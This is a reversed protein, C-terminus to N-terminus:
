FYNLKSRKRIFFSVLRVKSIGSVTYSQKSEVYYQGSSDSSCQGTGYRAICLLTHHVICIVVTNDQIIGPLVFYHTAYLVYLAPVM